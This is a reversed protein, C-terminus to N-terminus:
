DNKKSNIYFGRLFVFIIILVGITIYIDAFNYAPWYYNKYHMYIFDLVYNNIIRDILNSTAGAIILLIGWKELKNSTTFFLYVIFLTVIIGFFIIIWSKLFGSFLGFSIGYNHIHIFDVFSFIKVFSNLEILNFILKKSIYDLIILLIIVILKM